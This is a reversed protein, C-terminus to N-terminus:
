RQRDMVKQFAIWLYAGFVAGSGMAWAWWGLTRGPSMLSGLLIAGSLVLAFIVFRWNLMARAERRAQSRPRPPSIDPRGGVLRRPALSAWLLRASIWCVCAAIMIWRTWEPLSLAQSIITWVLVFGTVLGALKWQGGPGAIREWDAVLREYEVTTVLRGGSRRSPFYLYGGEIPTFQRTLAGTADFM